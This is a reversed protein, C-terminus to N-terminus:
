PGMSLGQGQARHRALGHPDWPLTAPLWPVAMLLGAETGSEARPWCIGWAETPKIMCVQRATAM